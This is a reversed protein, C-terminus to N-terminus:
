AAGGITQITNVITIGGRSTESGLAPCAELCAAVFDVPFEFPIAGLAGNLHPFYSGKTNLIGKGTRFDFQGISKDSQVMISGDAVPMVSFTQPKRMAGLKGTVKPGFYGKVIEFEGFTKGVATM